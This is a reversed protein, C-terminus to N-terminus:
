IEIELLIVTTASTYEDYGLGSGSYESLKPDPDQPPSHWMSFFNFNKKNKTFTKSTQKVALLTKRV